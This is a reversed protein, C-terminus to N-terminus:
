PHLGSSPCVEERLRAQDRPRGALTLIKLTLKTVWVPSRLSCTSPLFRSSRLGEGGGFRLCSPWIQTTSHLSHRQPSTPGDSHPEQLSVSAGHPPPVVPWLWLGSAEWFTAAEIGCQDSAGTPLSETLLLTPAQPLPSHMLTLAHIPPRPLAVQLRKHLSFKAAAPFKSSLFGTSKPAVERSPPLASITLNDRMEPQAEPQRRAVVWSPARSDSVESEVAPRPSRMRGGADSQPHWRMRQLPQHSPCQSAKSQLHASGAEPSLCGYPWM